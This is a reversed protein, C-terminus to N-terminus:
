LRALWFLRPRAAAWPARARQERVRPRLLLLSGFSVRPSVLGDGHAIRLDRAEARFARETGGARPPSRSTNRRMGSKRIRAMWRRTVAALSFAGRHRVRRRRLTSGCRVASSRKRSPGVVSQMLARRTGTREAVTLGAVCSLNWLAKTPCLYRRSKQRGGTTSFGARFTGRRFEDRSCCRLGLNPQTHM